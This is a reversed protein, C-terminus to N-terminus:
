AAGREFFDSQQGHHATRASRLATEWLALAADFAEPTAPRGSVYRRAELDVAEGLQHQAALEAATWPGDANLREFAAALAHSLYRRRSAALTM